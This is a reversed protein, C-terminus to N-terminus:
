DRGTFDSPPEDIEDPVFPLAGLEQMAFARALYIYDRDFRTRPNHLLLLSCWSASVKLVGYLKRHGKRRLWRNIRAALKRSSLTRLVSLTHDDLRVGPGRAPSPSGVNASLRKKM